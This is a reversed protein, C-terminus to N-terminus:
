KDNGNSRLLIKELQKASPIPEHPPIPVGDAVAKRYTPCDEYGYDCEVQGETKAATVTCRECM